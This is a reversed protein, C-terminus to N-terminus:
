VQMTYDREQKLKELILTKLDKANEYDENLSLATNLDELASDWDKHHYYCQSRKFYAFQNPNLELAKNIYFLCTGYDKSDWCKQAEYELHAPTEEHKKRELQRLDEAIKEKTIFHEIPKM